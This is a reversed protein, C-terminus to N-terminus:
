YSVEVADIEVTGFITDAYFKVSVAEKKIEFTFNYVRTIREDWLLAEKIRREIEPLVYYISKGILELFEVGYNNSYIEYQYRETQLIKFIAQKMAAQGDTVGLVRDRELRMHYTKTPLDEARKVEFDNTLEEREVTTPIM